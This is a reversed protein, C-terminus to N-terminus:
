QKWQTKERNWSEQLINWCKWSSHMAISHFLFIKGDEDMMAISAGGPHEIIEREAIIGGDCEVVDNRLNIIRGDYIRTTSIHKEM